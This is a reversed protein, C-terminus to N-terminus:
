IDLNLLTERRFILSIVLTLDFNYSLFDLNYLIDHHIYNQQTKIYLRFYLDLNFFFDTVLLYSFLIKILYFRAYLKSKM